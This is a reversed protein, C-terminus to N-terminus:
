EQEEALRAEEPLTINNWDLQAYDTMFRQVFPLAFDDLLRMGMESVYVTPTDGPRQHSAILGSAFLKRFVQNTAEELGNVIIHKKKYSDRVQYFIMAEKEDSFINYLDDIQFRIHHLHSVTIVSLVFYDRYTLTLWTAKSLYDRVAQELIEPNGTVFTPVSLFGSKAAHFSVRFTVYQRQENLVCVYLSESKRTRTVALLRQQATLVKAVAQRVMLERERM